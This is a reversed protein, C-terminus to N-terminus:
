EVVKGSSRNQSRWHVCHSSDSVDRSWMKCYKNKRLKCNKCTRWFTIIREVKWIYNSITQM